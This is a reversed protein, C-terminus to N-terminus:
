AQQLMLVATGVAARCRSYPTETKRKGYAGEDMEWEERYVHSKRGESPTAAPTPAQVDGANSLMPVRRGIQPIGQEEGYTSSATSLPPPRAVPPPKAAASRQAVPQHLATGEAITKPAPESPTSPSKTRTPRPPIAPM